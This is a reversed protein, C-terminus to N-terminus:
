FSQIAHDDSRTATGNGSISCTAATGITNLSYSGGLPCRPASRLSMHRLVEDWSVAGSARGTSDAIARKASEIRKLNEQCQRAAAVAEPPVDGVPATVENGIRRVDAAARRGTNELDSKSIVGYYLLAGVVAVIAVAIITLRM